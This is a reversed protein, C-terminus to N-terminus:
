KNVIICVNQLYIYSNVCKFPYARPRCSVEKDVDDVEEDEDNIDIILDDNKEDDCMKDGKFKNV